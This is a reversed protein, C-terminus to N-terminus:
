MVSNDTHSEDKTSTLGLATAYEAINFENSSLRYRRNIDDWTRSCNKRAM